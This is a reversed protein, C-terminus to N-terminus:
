PFIDLIELSVSSVILSSECDSWKLHAGRDRFAAAPQPFYM